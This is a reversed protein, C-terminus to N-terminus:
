SKFICFEVFEIKIKSTFRYNKILDYPLTPFQPHPIPCPANPIPLQYNTTPLQSNTISLKEGDGRRGMGKDGGRGGRGARGWRKTM